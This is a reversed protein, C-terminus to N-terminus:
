CSNFVGYASILFCYDLGLACYVFVVVVVGSLATFYMSSAHLHRPSVLSESIFWGLFPKKDM